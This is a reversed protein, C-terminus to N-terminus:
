GRSAVYRASRAVGNTRPHPSIVALRREAPIQGTRIIQFPTTILGDCMRILSPAHLEESGASRAHGGGGFGEGSPGRRDHLGPMWRTRPVGSAPGTARRARLGRDEAEAAEPAVLLIEPLERADHRRGDAVGTAVRRVRGVLLDAGAPGTVGLDDEDGVVRRPDGVLLQELGEPLGVVRGLAHALAVVDAGAVARDDEDGVVLLSGGGLGRLRHVLLLQRGLAVARDRGLDDIAAVVREVVGLVVM